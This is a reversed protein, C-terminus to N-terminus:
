QSVIRVLVRMIKKLNDLKAYENPKHAM